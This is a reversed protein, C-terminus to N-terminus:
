LNNVYDVYTEMDFKRKLGAENMYRLTGFISREQWPRDHRGFCWAINSYSNPNRGDIFYKNNLYVIIEYASEMSSSWEMIKKAWYMRLYNAMFGTIIAEKMASNFYIDHTKASEIEELTYIYDRLDEKHANMTIYAWKETIHNFDDYNPNYTVFNYALERRVILQEIFAESEEKYTHFNPHKFLKKLIDQVSIQGFQLYMSVYSQIHLSADSRDKYKPLLNDLFDNLHKIAEVYGGKFKFYPKVNLDINLKQIISDINQIDVDSKFNLKQINELNNSYKFDIYEFFKKHVSPRIAYAAYALKPYLSEVPILVDSEIQYINLKPNNRQCLEYIKNRMQLQPKLYARDTILTHANQILPKLTDEVHGLKIIFEINRKIFDSQLNKLGELMFHYHRLNADPYNLVINFVVILPLKKDNAIHIAYELAHNYYMRMSQQMWYLIYQGENDEQNSNIIKIRDKHM